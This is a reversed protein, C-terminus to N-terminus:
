NGLPPSPYIFYQSLHRIFKDTGRFCGLPSSKINNNIYFNSLWLHAPHIHAQWQIYNISSNSSHFNVSTVLTWLPWCFSLSLNHNVLTTLIHHLFALLWLLLFFLLFYTIWEFTNPTLILIELPLLQCLTLYQFYLQVFSLIGNSNSCNYSIHLWCETGPEVSPFKYM